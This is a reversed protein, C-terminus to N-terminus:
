KKVRIFYSNFYIIGIVDNKYKSISNLVKKFLLKIM